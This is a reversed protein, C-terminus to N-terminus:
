CELSDKPKMPKHGFKTHAHETPGQPRSTNSNSTLSCHCFLNARIWVVIEQDVGLILACIVITERESCRKEAETHRQTERVCLSM